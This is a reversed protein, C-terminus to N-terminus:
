NKHEASLWLHLIIDNPICQKEKQSIKMSRGLFKYKMVHYCNVARM